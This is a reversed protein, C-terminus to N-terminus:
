INRRKMRCFCLSAKLINRLGLDCLWLYPRIFSPIITLIHSVSTIIYRTKIQNMGDPLCASSCFHLVNSPITFVVTVVTVIIVAVGSSMMMADHVDIDVSDDKNIDQDFSNQEDRVEIENSDNQRTKKMCILMVFLFILVPLFITTQLIEMINVALIKKNEYDKSMRCVKFPLQNLDTLNAFTIIKYHQLVPLVVIYTGAFPLCFLIVHCFYTFCSQKLTIKMIRDCCLSTLALAIFILHTETIYRSINCFIEGYKWAGDPNLWSVIEFSFVTVFILDGVSCVVIKLYYLHRRLKSCVILLIIWLNSFIILGSIAGYTIALIDAYTYEPEDRNEEDDSIFINDFFDDWSTTSKTNM